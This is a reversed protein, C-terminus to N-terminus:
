FEELIQEVSMSYLKEWYKRHESKLSEIEEASSGSPAVFEGVRIKQSTKDEFKFKVKM